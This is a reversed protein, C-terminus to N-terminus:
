YFCAITSFFSADTKNYLSYKRCKETECRRRKELKKPCKKGKGIVDQKVMRRKYKFAKGCTASCESWDSWESVVCDINVGFDVEWDKQLDEEPHSPHHEHSSDQM